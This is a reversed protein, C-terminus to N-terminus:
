PLHLKDNGFRALAGRRRLNWLSPRISIPRQWTRGLNQMSGQTRTRSYREKVKHVTEAVADYVKDGQYALLVSAFVIGATVPIAIAWFFGQTRDTDRIDTTNM